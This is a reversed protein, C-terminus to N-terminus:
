THIILPSVRSPVVLDTERPWSRLRSRPCPFYYDRNLQGRGSNAVMGPQDMSFNIIMRVGIARVHSQECDTWENKKGVRERRVAGELNGFIIWKPLWRGNM